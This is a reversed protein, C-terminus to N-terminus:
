IIIVDKDEIKVNKGFLNVEGHDRIKYIRVSDLGVDIIKPVERLLKQYLVDSIYAEFASRQVRFGYSKMKKAFRYRRKNDVIDYIILIYMKKIQFTEQINWFYNEM